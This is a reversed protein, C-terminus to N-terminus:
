KRKLLGAEALRKKVWKSKAPGLSPPPVEKDYEVYRPFASADYVQDLLPQLALEVDADDPLLPVAIVPLPDELQIPYIFYDELRDFRRCCIHYDFPGAKAVADKRPVSTTHRGGRLLDIEVLHVKKDTLERQKRLFADCGYEGARKNTPSLIEISTVLRRGSSEKRRIEVFTERYEEFPITVIVPKPRGVSLLATGTDHRARRGNKRHIRVDPGVPRRAPEVWVRSGAVAYYPHPLRTMLAEKIHIILSDHLDPFVDAAELYPDMGPFPSPM